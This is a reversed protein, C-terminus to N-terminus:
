NPAVAKKMGFGFAKTSLVHKQEYMVIILIGALNGLVIAVTDGSVRPARNNTQVTSLRELYEMAKDYEPTGPGYESMERLLARENAAFMNPKRNIIKGIM